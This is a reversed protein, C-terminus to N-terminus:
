PALVYQEESHELDKKPPLSVWAGHDLERFRFGEVGAVAFSDNGSLMRTAVAADCWFSGDPQDSPWKPGDVYDAWSNQVLLGPREGFRCGVFALCHSWSGQARCFGDKDRTSNFGQGSCVAVPYGSQIAAAAEEFNRVLTVEHVPHEKAIADLKGNDKEGGCGYAGWQKARTGSYNTLDHEGVRERFVIGFNRVWKAAAGGYSGDSWGGFTKGLAEVRSGGYIAETASEKFEGVKGLEYDVALSIDVCVGWGHSVCDGIEQKHPKWDRGYKAKYSKNLARYLFTDTKDAKFINPDADRITPTPLSAVFKATEDPQPTYGFFQKVENRPETALPCFLLFGAVFLLTGVVAAITSKTQTTM